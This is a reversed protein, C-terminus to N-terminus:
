VGVKQFHCSFKSSRGKFYGHHLVNTRRSVYLINRSSDYIDPRVDVSLLTQVNLDRLVQGMKEEVSWGYNLGKGTM